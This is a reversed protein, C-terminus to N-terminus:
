REIEKEKPKEATKEQSKEQEQKNEKAMARFDDLSYKKSEKGEKGKIEETVIMQTPNAITGPEDRSKASDPFANLVFDQADKLGRRFEGNLTADNVLATMIRKALGSKRPGGENADAM